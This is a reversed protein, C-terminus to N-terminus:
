RSNVSEPPFAEGPDPNYTDLLQAATRYSGVHLLPEILSGDVWLRTTHLKIIPPM